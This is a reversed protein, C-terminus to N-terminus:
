RPARGCRDRGPPAPRGRCRVPQPAEPVGLAEPLDQVRGELVANAGTRPRPVVDGSSGRGRVGSTPRSRWTECSTSRTSRGRMTVSVPVPPTPLVRRASRPRRPAAAGRRRGTRPAPWGRRGAGRRDVHGPGHGGRHADARDVVRDLGRHGQEFAVVREEHDVVALVDDVGGGLDDALEGVAAGPQLHMAVLRSGSPISPSCTTRTAGSAAPSPTWGRGAAPRPPRSPDRRRDVVRGDSSMTRRSSPSGSAMSSVAAWATVRPSGAMRSPSRCRAGDEARRRRPFTSRWAVMPAVM